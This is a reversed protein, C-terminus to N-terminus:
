AGIGEVAQLAADVYRRALPVWKDRERVVPELLHALALRARLLAKHATYFCLVAAPPEGLMAVFRAHLQPGIWPAGALACELDLFALEEFPDVLRLSRDFELCDIVVPPSNLCVHEPRLDGHGEVVFGGAARAGLPERLTALARDARDLAVMAPGGDLALEPRTLVDRDFRQERAFRAIFDPPAVREAPQARYFATLLGAVRDIDAPTATGAAIARDLMRGAPLRRMVVLWDAVRTGAPIERAPAIALAGNSDVVLAAVGVYVDPALRRNLRVEARCNQERRAPTSFDLYANRVPKKLKLVREPGLFVWSMHTEVSEITVPAGGWARPSRLFRLKAALTPEGDRTPAAPGEATAQARVTM